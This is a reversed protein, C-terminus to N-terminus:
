KERWGVLLLQCWHTYYFPLGTGCIQTAMAYSQPYTGLPNRIWAVHGDEYGTNVGKSEHAGQQQPNFFFYNNTGDYGTFVDSTLVRQSASASPGYSAVYEYMGRRRMSYRQGYLSFSNTHCTCGYGPVATDGCLIATKIWTTDNKKTITPCETVKRNAYNWIPRTSYFLVGYQGGHGSQPLYSEDFDDAYCHIATTLQKQNSVCASRKGMERANGMAPLLMAALIAIIAIVVLLEILTFCM